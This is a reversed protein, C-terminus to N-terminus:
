KLLLSKLVPMLNKVVVSYGQATPHIGDAQNLDVRTAVGELFFPILVVQYRVALEPYIREFRSAYDEGYNPPLKMGALVVKVGAAQFCEIMQALNQRSQNLDLGRLGDNAGLEIIVIDPKSGLLQDLRRLGGATTDGSVGMNIVRYPYGEEQLKQELISPYSQKRAVGLGATLSNGLAVIVHQAQEVKPAVPPQTKAAGPMRQGIESSREAQSCGTQICVALFLLLILSSKVVSPKM